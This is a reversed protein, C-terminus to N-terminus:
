RLRTMFERVRAADIRGEHAGHVKFYTGVIFADAFPALEPLSEPTVGSGIFVQAHGAASKARKVDEVSTPRGTGTGSVAVADAMGREVADHVEHELPRPMGLPAAHKVDVDAIIRVDSAGLLMRERLLNHGIGELVGQDAVRAGSLVNVRIFLAGVAHAIALGSIGDNRLVNIGLPLDFRRRVEAALATMHAVVYAPVRGPFFPTDGFNEMMFGHVGGSALAEADRLLADRVADPKGCFRPSGPLAELHLMGVVAKPVSAWAPIFPKNTM